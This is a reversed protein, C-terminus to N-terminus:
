LTYKFVLNITYGENLATSFTKNFTYTLISEWRTTTWGVKAEVNESNDSLNKVDYKYSWGWSFWRHTYDGRIGYSSSIDPPLDDQSTDTASRTADVGFSWGPFPATWTINVATSDTRQINALASDTKRGYTHDIKSEANRTSFIKYALHVKLDRTATSSSTRLDEKFTIDYSPELTLSIAKFDFTNRVSYKTDVTTKAGKESSDTRDYAASAKWFAAVQGDWTASRIDQGTETDKTTDVWHDEGTEKKQYKLNFTLLSSFKLALEGTWTDETKRNDDTTHRAEVINRTFEGKLGIPRGIDQTATARINTTLTDEHKVMNQKLDFDYNGELNTDKFPRFGVLNKWTHTQNEGQGTAGGASLLTASKELSVSYQTDLRIKSHIRHRFGVGGGFKENETSADQTLRDDVTDRSYDGKLDFWDAPRYISSLAVGNKVTNSIGEQFDKDLTYKAKFDPLAKPPNYFFEFLYSDTVKPTKGPEDSNEQTRKGGIMGEWHLGKFTMNLTPLIRTIDAANSNIEQEFKFTIENEVVPSILGKYKLDFTQKFKRVNTTGTATKDVDTDYSLQYNGGIM